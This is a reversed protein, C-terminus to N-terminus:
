TSEQIYLSNEVKGRITEKGHLSLDKLLPPVSELECFRSDRLTFVAIQGTACMQSISLLTTDKMDDIVITKLVCPPLDGMHTPQAVAGFALTDIASSERINHLHSAQGTGCTSAGSPIVAHSLRPHLHSLCSCRPTRYQSAKLSFQMKVPSHSTLAQISDSPRTPHAELPCSRYPGSVM